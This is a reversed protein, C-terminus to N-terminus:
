EAVAFSSCSFKIHFSTLYIDSFFCVKTTLSLFFSQPQPQMPIMAFFAFSDFGPFSFDLFYSEMGQKSSLFTEQRVHINPLIKILFSPKQCDLELLKEL